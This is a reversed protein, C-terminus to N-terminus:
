QLLSRYLEGYNAVMTELSITFWMFGRLLAMGASSIPITSTGCSPKPWRTMM